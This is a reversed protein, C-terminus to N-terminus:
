YQSRLASRAGLQQARNSGRRGILALISSAKKNAKIQVGRMLLAGSIGCHRNIALKDRVIGVV